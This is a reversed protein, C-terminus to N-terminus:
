KYIELSWDYALGFEAAKIHKHMVNMFQLM